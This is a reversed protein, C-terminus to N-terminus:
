LDPASTIQQRATWLIDLASKSINLSAEAQAFQKKDVMAQFAIFEPALRHIPAPFTRKIVEGTRLTLTYGEDLSVPRDFEIWGKEGTIQARNPGQCDKAALCVAKMSGYDLTLVGSTDVGWQLNPAYTVGKPPGFLLLATHINYVNLDMLAGGALAPDFAPPTDGQLFADYRSSYQSYNFGVLRLDGLRALDRRMTQLTPLYHLPMAEALILNREKALMRLRSLEEPHTVMPKEVIVHKGSLLARQAFDFHLANPLGIYITDAGGGLLDGYNYCLEPIAYKMQLTKAREESRRTALLAQPHIDLRKLVPLLEQVIKGTGLLALKM